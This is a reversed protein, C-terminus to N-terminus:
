RSTDGNGAIFCPKSGPSKRDRCEQEESGAIVLEKGAVATPSSKALVAKDDPQAEPCYCSEDGGLVHTFTSAASTGKQKGM